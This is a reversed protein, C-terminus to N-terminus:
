LVGHSIKKSILDRLFVDLEKSQYFNVCNYIVLNSRALDGVVQAPKYFHDTKNRIFVDLTNDKTANFAFWKEVDIFGMTYDHLPLNNFDVGMKSYNNTICRALSYTKYDVLSEIMNEQKNEGSRAAYVFNFLFLFLVYKNMM